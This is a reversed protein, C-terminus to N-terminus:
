HASDHSLQVGVLRFAPISQLHESSLPYRASLIVLAILLQYDPLFIGGSFILSTFIFLMAVISRDAPNRLFYCGSAFAGGVLLVLGPWGFYYVILYAGNDLSSGVEMGNLVGYTRYVRDVSGLPMGFVHTQLVDTVMRFPAVIRYNVSSGVVSVTAVRNAVYTSAIWVLAPLLALVVARLYRHKAFRPGTLIAMSLTFAVLLGALSRTALLGIALLAYDLPRVKRRLMLMAFASTLVLANFSPELYFGQARTVGFQLAADYSYFYQHGRWPNYLFPNGYAEFLFFQALSYLSVPWLVLRACTALWEGSGRLPFTAMSLSILLSFALLGLTRLFDTLSSEGSSTQFVVLVYAFVCCASVVTFPPVLPKTAKRMILVVALPAVTLPFGGVNTIEFHLGIVLVAVTAAFGTSSTKQTESV